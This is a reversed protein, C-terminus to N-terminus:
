ELGQSQASAVYMRPKLTRFLSEVIVPKLFLARNKHPVKMSCRTARSKGESQKM